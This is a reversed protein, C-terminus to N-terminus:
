RDVLSTQEHKVVEKWLLEKHKCVRAMDEVTLKNKVSGPKTADVRTWRTDEENRELLCLIPKASTRSGSGKVVEVEDDGEESQEEDGSGGDCGDEETESETM